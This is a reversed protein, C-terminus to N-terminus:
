RIYLIRLDNVNTLTAGTLLLKGRQEFFTYADNDDLFARVERRSVNAVVEPDITAGANDEVGDIGDTDAALAHVGPLGDLELALALLFESNRGGRGSGRVTVTTEGGSLLVCPPALPQAHQRVQRALAAHFKAAERAEGTLSETLILPTVGRESFFTACRELVGQANAVIITQTREFAEDAAGPTDTLEGAVGKQFYAEVGPADVAYRNLVDLADQFSTPDPVTPGSAIASLDDGTVDSIVLSLVQAPYAAKALKGGKVSSLHKRVANMEAIEAGSKLLAKTLQAKQELTVGEPAVLLASGGGSILCLLLDNEDLSQALELIRRTARLGAEDPVPHAAEVVEIRKTEVGHGYRTIVLGELPVGDYHKEVAAAMSAAAKGAGMVVLRGKPPPPLHPPLVTEPLAAKLADHFAETLLTQPDSM